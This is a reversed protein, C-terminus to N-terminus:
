VYTNMGKRERTGEEENLMQLTKQREDGTTLPCCGGYNCGRERALTLRGTAMAIRKATTARPVVMRALCAHHPPFKRSTVSCINALIGESFLLSVYLWPLYAWRRGVCVSLVTRVSHSFYSNYSSMCHDWYSRPLTLVSILMCRQSITKGKIEAIEKMVDAM